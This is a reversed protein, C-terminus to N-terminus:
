QGDGAAIFRAYVYLLGFGAFVSLVLSLAYSPTM